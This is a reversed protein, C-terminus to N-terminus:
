ATGPFELQEKGASNPLQMLFLPKIRQLLEFMKKKGDCTTEGILIDSASFFPCTDSAAYGYSSKILPCLNAPLVKEAEYIPTQDKGCLGIPIAGAARILETPAFTCYVGIVKKGMEKREELDLLCQESVRDFWAMSELRM